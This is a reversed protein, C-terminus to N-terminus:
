QLGTNKVQCLLVGLQRVIEQLRVKRREHAVQHQHRHPKQVRYLANLEQIGEIERKLEAIQRGFAVDVFPLTGPAHPTRSSFRDM